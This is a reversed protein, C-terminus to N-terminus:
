PREILLDIEMDFLFSNEYSDALLPMQFDRSPQPREILADIEVGVAFLRKTECTAKSRWSDCSVLSVHDFEQDIQSRAIGLNSVQFAAAVVKYHSRVAGIMLMSNALNRNAGDQWTAIAISM